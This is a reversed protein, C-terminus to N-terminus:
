EENVGERDIHCTKDNIVDEVYGDTYCTKEPKCPTTEQYINVKSVSVDVIKEKAAKLIKYYNNFFYREALVRDAFRMATEPKTTFICEEAIHLNRLYNFSTEYFLTLVYFSDILNKTKAEM